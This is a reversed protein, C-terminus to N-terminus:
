PENSAAARAASSSASARTMEAPEETEARSRVACAHDVVQALGAHHDVPHRQLRALGGDEATQPPLGTTPSGPLGTLAITTAPSNRVGSSARM